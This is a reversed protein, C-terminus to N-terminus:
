NNYPMTLIQAEECRQAAHQMAAKKTNGFGVIRPDLSKGNLILEATWQRDDLQNCIWGVEVHARQGWTELEEVLDIDRGGPKGRALFYVVRSPYTAKTSAPIQDTPGTTDGFGRTSSGSPQVTPYGFLDSRDPQPEAMTAPVAPDGQSNNSSPSIAAAEGSSPNPPRSPALQRSTQFREPLNPTPDHQSSSQPSHQPSYRPSPKPSHRPLPLVRLHDRVESATPRDKPDYSWCRTLLKWLEDGWGNDSPFHVESRAPMKTLVRRELHGPTGVLITMGLAYVDGATSNIEKGELLEPAAWRLTIGGGTEVDEFKLAAD